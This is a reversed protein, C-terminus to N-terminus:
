RGALADVIQLRAAHFAPLAASILAVLGAGVIGAEVVVIPMSLGPIFKAAYPFVILALALGALAAAVCVVASEAVILLFVGVDTFGLTKLVALEPARERLAQMMM